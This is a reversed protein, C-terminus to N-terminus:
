TTPTGLNWQPSKELERLRAKVCLDRELELWDAFDAVVGDQGARHLLSLIKEHLSAGALAGPDIQADFCFAKLSTDDVCHLAVLRLIRRSVKSLAYAADPGRMATKPPVRTERAFFMVVQEIGAAVDQRLDAHIRDRLLIPAETDDVLIPIIVTGPSALAAKWEIDVWRSEMAAHSVLLLLYSAESLAAGIGGAISDGLAMERLDLWPQLGAAALRDFLQRAIREDARAYSIFIRSGNGM